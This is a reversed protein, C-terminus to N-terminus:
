RRDDGDSFLFRPVHVQVPSNFKNQLSAGAFIEQIGLHAQVAPDSIQAVVGDVLSPDTLWILSGDDSIDFAEASGIAKAPEGGGIGVRKTVDIPSQGHKAGVIILTSDLLGNKKLASVFKGLSHDIYDLESALGPTGLVDVYGGTIQPDNPGKKLKEGVSVSQFRVRDRTLARSRFM